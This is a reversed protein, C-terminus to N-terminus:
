NKIKSHISQSMPTSGSKPLRDTSDINNHFGKWYDGTVCLEFHVVEEVNINAAKKITRWISIKQSANIVNARFKGDSPPM